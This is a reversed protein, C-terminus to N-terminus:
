EKTGELGEGETFSICAIRDLRAIADAEPKSAMAGGYVLFGGKTKPYINIWLKESINILDNVSKTGSPGWTGNPFHYSAYEDGNDKEVLAIIPQTGKADVCILRTKREDSTQVKTALPDHADLKLTTM